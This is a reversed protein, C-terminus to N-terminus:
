HSNHNIAAKLPQRGSNLVQLSTWESLLRWKNGGGAHVSISVVWDTSEGARASISVVWDVGDGARVSVTVVWEASDGARVSVSM